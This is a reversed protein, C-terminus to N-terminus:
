RVAYGAAEIVSIADESRLYDVFDRAAVNAMGYRLLVADQRIPEFLHAPVIWVGQKGIVPSLAVFGLEANGSEIFQLTQSINEGIVLKPSIAASLGLRDLTEMAARGYPATEPDAIAIKSFDGARLAAEGDGLDMAPGYLALSGVAYTFASGEVALGEEVARAPREDDAALFVHFPAAQTIQAYLQGTAGFSLLLKHGTDAEFDAALEEAVSTFNAAVAINASDAHAPAIFTLGMFVAYPRLLWDLEGLAGTMM